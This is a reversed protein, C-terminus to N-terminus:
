FGYRVSFSGDIGTIQSTGRAYELQGKSGKLALDVSFRQSLRWELGLGASGISAGNSGYDNTQYRKAGALIRWTFAPSSRFRAALDLDFQNGNSNLEEAQLSGLGRENKGKTRFQLTADIMASSTLPYFTRLTSITKLGSRFVENGNLKDAQYATVSIDATIVWQGADLDIARDLGLTGTAEAGPKYEIDSLEAPRFATKGVAGVGLGLVWDGLELAYVVGLNLDSGQGFSPVEFDLATVSLVNGLTIQDDNLNTKGTAITVGATLLLTEDLLVYTARIRTDTLGALKQSPTSMTATAAAAMADLSLGNTVPVTVRFPVAFSTIKTGSEAEWHQLRGTAGVEMFRRLGGLQAFSVTQVVLLAITLIRRM